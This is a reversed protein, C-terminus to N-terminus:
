PVNVDTLQEGPRIDMVVVRGDLVSPDSIAKYALGRYPISTLVYLEKNQVFDGMTGAPIFEKAVLVPAPALPDTDSRPYFVVFLAVTLVTAVIGLAIGLVLFRMKGGENM